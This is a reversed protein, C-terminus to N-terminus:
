WDLGDLRSVAQELYTATFEPLADRARADDLTLWHVAAVEEPERIRAEGSDYQAVFVVNVVREGTDSQFATSTVYALGDVSVGVEEQLEREVTRELIEPTPDSTEVKGGILSLAGAAHDEEAAREALLFEGDRHVAAEVNVVYQPSDTM